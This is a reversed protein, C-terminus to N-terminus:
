HMVTFPNQSKLTEKSTSVSASMVSPVDPSILLPSTVKVRHETRLTGRRQVAIVANDDRFQKNLQVFLCPCYQKAFIFM